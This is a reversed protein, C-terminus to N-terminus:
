LLIIMQLGYHTVVEQLRDTGSPHHSHTMCVEAGFGKAIEAIRTDDTAIIIKQADSQLAREYVHQLM